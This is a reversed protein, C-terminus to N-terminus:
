EYFNLDYYKIILTEGNPFVVPQPAYQADVKMQEVAQIWEKETDEKGDAQGTLYVTPIAVIVLLLLLIIMKIPIEYM